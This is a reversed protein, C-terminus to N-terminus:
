IGKGLNIQYRLSDQWTCLDVINFRVYSGLYHKPEVYSYVYYAEVM